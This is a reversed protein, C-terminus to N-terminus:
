TPSDAESERADEDDTGDSRDDSTKANFSIQLSSRFVKALWHEFEIMADQNQLSPNPPIEGPVATTGNELHGRSSIILRQLARSIFSDRTDRRLVRKLEAKFADYAEVLEQDEFPM